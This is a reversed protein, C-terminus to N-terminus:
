YRETTSPDKTDFWVEYGSLDRLDRQAVARGEIRVEDSQPDLEITEGGRLWGTYVMNHTSRDYVYAIGRQPATFRVADKGGQISVSRATRPISPPRDTSCGVLVAVSVLIAGTAAAARGGQKAQTLAGHSRTAGGGRTPTQM